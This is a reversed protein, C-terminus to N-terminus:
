DFLKNLMAKARRRVNEPRNEAKAIGELVSRHPAAHEGMRGLLTCIWYLQDPEETLATQDVLWQSMEATAEVECDELLGNADEMIIEDNSTVSKLLIAIQESSFPEECKRLQELEASIDM